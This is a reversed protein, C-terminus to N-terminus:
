AMEALSPPCNGRSTNPQNDKTLTKSERKSSDASM